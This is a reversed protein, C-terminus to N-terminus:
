CSRVKFFYCTTFRFVCDWVQASKKPTQSIPHPLPPPPPKSQIVRAWSLSMQRAKTFATIFKRTGCFASFKRVTQLDLLRGLLVRSKATSIYNTDTLQTPGLASESHCCYFFTKSGGPILDLNKPWGARLRTVTSVIDCTQLGVTEKVTRETREM